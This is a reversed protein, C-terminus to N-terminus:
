LGDHWKTGFSSMMEYDTPEYDDDECSCCIDGEDSKLICDCKPCYDFNQKGPDPYVGSDQLDKIADDERQSDLASQHNHLFSDM